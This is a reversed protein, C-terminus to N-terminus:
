PDYGAAAFTFILAQLIKVPPNSRHNRDRILLVLKLVLLLRQRPAADAAARAMASGIESAEIHIQEQM